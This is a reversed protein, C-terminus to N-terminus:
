GGLIGSLYSSQSNLQSLASEMASFQKYYREEYETIREEWEEITNELESQQSKMYKDNYITFASRLSTASMKKTLENYVGNAIQSFASVFTEPDTAIAKRLKDDNGSSVSDDPDGDIHFSGRDEVATSLYSGTAIGFSSLTYTTGDVEYGKLMATQMSSMIGSLTDDRRLLSDKIKKEWKEIEDDSMAEKEEDTLPEYGKSSDANYLTQMEKMLDNYSKLFDKVMNYIGDVDTETTITIEEDAGTVALATITLGNISFNNTNSTFTAGNLTIESDQGAIRVASSAGDASGDTMDAVVQKAADRIGEYKSKLNKYYDSDAYGQTFSILDQNTTLEDTTYTKGLLNRNNAVLETNNNVEEKLSAIRDNVDGAGLNADYEDYKKQQAEYEDAKKLLDDVAKKDEQSLSQYEQNTINGDQDRTIQSRDIGLKEQIAKDNEDINKNLKERISDKDQLYSIEQNLATIKTNLETNKQNIQYTLYDNLAFNVIQDDSYNAMMKYQELEKDSVTYIGMAKMAEIGGADGTLAFDYDAGSNKSSIFFRQNTEDFSANLGATKLQSVMQNITMDGSVSFTHETGDVSVTINGSTNLGLDSLKSSGTYNAKKGDKQLEAGTLYGTTALKNVKLKQMGNVAGTAATVTAKSTNSSSATKKNYNTSFRMNSLTGTYFSYTKTNLSKWADQTWELKTKQKVYNDKKTSYAAVLEQVIADTDLGSILGSLRIPM